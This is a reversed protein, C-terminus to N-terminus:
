ADSPRIKTIIESYEHGYTSGRGRELTGERKVRVGRERALNFASRSFLISNGSEGEVDCVVGHVVARGEGEKASRQPVLRGGAQEERDQDKDLVFNRKGKFLM